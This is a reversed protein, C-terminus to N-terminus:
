SFNFIATSFSGGQCLDLKSLSPPLKEVAMKLLSMRSLKEGNWTKYRNTRKDSKFAIYASFECMTKNLQYWFVNMKLRKHSRDRTQTKVTTNHVVVNIRMVSLWGNGYATGIWSYGICRNRSICNFVEALKELAALFHLCRVCLTWEPM